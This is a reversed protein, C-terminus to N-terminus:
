VTPKIAIGARYLNLVGKCPTHYGLDRLKDLSLPNLKWENLEVKVSTEGVWGIVTIPQKANKYVKIDIGCELLLTHEMKAILIAHEESIEAFPTLIIQCEEVLYNDVGSYILYEGDYETRKIGWIEDSFGECDPNFFKAGMYMAFIKAKVENTIM